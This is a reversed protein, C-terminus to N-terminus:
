PKTVKHLKVQAAFTCPSFQNLIGYSDLLAATADAAGVLYAVQAMGTVPKDLQFTLPQASSSSLTVNSTGDGLVPIVCRPAQHTFPDPNPVSAVKGKVDFGFQCAGATEVLDTLVGPEVAITGLTMGPLASVDSWPSFTATGNTGFSMSQPCTVTSTDVDVNWKGEFEAFPDPSDDSDCGGLLLGGYGLM